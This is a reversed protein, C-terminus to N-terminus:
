LEGVPVHTELRELEWGSQIRVRSSLAAALNAAESQRMGFRRSGIEFRGESAVAEAYLTALIEGDRVIAMRSSSGLSALRDRAESTLTVEVAWDLSFADSSVGHVERASAIDEEVILSDEELVRLVCAGSDLHEVLMLETADISLGEAEMCDQERESRLVRNVWVLTPQLVELLAHVETVDQIFLTIRRRDSRLIRASIGLERLREIMAGADGDDFEEYAVLTAEYSAPVEPPIADYSPDFTQSVASRDGATRLYPALVGEGWPIALAVAIAVSLMAAGIALPWPQKDRGHAHAVFRSWLFSVCLTSLVTVIAAAAGPAWGIDASSLSAIMSTLIGNAIISVIMGIACPLGLVDISSRLPIRLAFPVPWMAAPRRWLLLGLAAICGAFALPEALFAPDAMRIAHRVEFPTRAIVIALALALGGRAAGTLSIRDAIWWLLAAAATSSLMAVVRFSTGPSAVYDDGTASLAELAFVDSYTRLATLSLALVAVVIRPAPRDEIRLALLALQGALVTAAPLGLLPYLALPVGLFSRPWTPDDRLGPVGAFNGLFVVLAAAATWVLASRLSGGDEQRPRVENGM